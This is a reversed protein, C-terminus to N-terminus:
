RVFGFRSFANRFAGGRQGFYFFAQGQTPAALSGDASEFRIRGRTFCINTAASEALHFWGTDTYNHTLLVAEPVNGSGVEEVLKAIFQHVLPQSYPPNLWVKGHWPKTLGDDDATFWLAARVREQAKESTAPDLDFGGLVERAAEIYEAPTYWENEGTGQARHNHAEDQGPHAEKVAERLQRVSWGEREATGLLVDAEQPELYAVERHHSWGLNARRRAYEFRDAVNKAMRVTSYSKGTAEIAAEYKDGYRKGYAAWDGLWWQVSREVGQLTEGLGQWEEFSLNDPLELGVETARGPLALGTGSLRVVEGTEPIIAHANV